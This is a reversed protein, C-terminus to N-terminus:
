GVSEPRDEDEPISEDLPDAAETEVEEPDLDESELDLPEGIDPDPLGEAKALKRALRAERKKAAKALRKQEKQRKLFSPRRDGAM